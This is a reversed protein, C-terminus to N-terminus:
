KLASLLSAAIGAWVLVASKEGPATAAASSGAAGQNASSSITQSTTSQPGGPKTGDNQAVTMSSPAGLIRATGSIMNGSEDGGKVQWEMKVSDGKAGSVVEASAVIFEYEGPELYESSAWNIPM